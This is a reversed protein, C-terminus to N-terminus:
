LVHSWDLTARLTQQRAPLGRSGGTLLSLRSTLQQLLTQPSMSKIRPAALEIVLPPGELRVCIEAVAAANVASV